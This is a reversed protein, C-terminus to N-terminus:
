AHDDGGWDLFVPGSTEGARLVAAAVDRGAPCIYSCIGCGDCLRPTLRRLRAYHMNEARRVIEYPLLHAHCVSACRGCGICPQAISVPRPLMALITTTGPLLPIHRDHCATGTMADGLVAYCDERVGCHRLIDDVSTGYPIRLNRTHTVGDGAITVIATLAKKGETAAKALALCAQIGVRFVERHGDAYQTVPYEDDVIYVNSQSIAHKLARRKAKPLMTAIHCHKFRIAKTALQLGILAEEPEEDLVAWASSGYIDNETADAVLLCNRAARDRAPLQWAILKEALPIGDLEDYIAANRAIAIIDDATLSDTNHTPLRDEDDAVPEVPILEACLLKGYQPHQLVVTGGFSADIPALVPLEGDAHCIVNGAKFQTNEDFSLTPVPMDTDLQALPVRVTGTVTYSEIPQQAADGKNFPLAIGRQFITM